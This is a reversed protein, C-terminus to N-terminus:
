EKVYKRYIYIIGIMSVVFGAIGGIFFRLGFSHDNMAIKGFFDFVPNRGRGFFGGILMPVWVYYTAALFGVIGGGIASMFISAFITGVLSKDYKEREFVHFNKFGTTKEEAEM